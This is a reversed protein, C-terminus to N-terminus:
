TNRKVGVIPKWMCSCIPYGNEDVAGGVLAFVDYGLRASISQIEGRTYFKGLEMLRRCLGCDCKSGDSFTSNYCPKNEFCKDNEDLGYESGKFVLEYRVQFSSNIETPKNEKDGDDEINIKNSSKKKFLDFFGM